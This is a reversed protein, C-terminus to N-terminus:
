EKRGEAAALRSQWLDTLSKYHNAWKRAHETILERALQLNPEKLIVVPTEKRGSLRGIHCEMAFGGVAPHFFKGNVPRIMGNRIEAERSEVILAPPGEKPTELIYFYLMMGM